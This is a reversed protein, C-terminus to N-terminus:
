SQGHVSCGCPFVSCHLIDGEAGDSVGKFHLDSCGLFRLKCVKFQIIRMAQHHIKVSDLVLEAEFLPLNRVEANPADAGRKELTLVPFRRSDYEVETVICEVTHQVVAGANKANHKALCNM